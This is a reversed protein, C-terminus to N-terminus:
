QPDRGRNLLKEVVQLCQLQQEKPMRGQPGGDPESLRRFWMPTVPVAALRRRNM